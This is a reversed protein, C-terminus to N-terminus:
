GDHIMTLNICSKYASVRFGVEEREDFLLTVRTWNDCIGM